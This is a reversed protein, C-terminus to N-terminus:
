LRRRKKWKEKTKLLVKFNFFSIIVELSFRLLLPFIIHIRVYSRVVLVDFLIAYSLQIKTYNVLINETGAM